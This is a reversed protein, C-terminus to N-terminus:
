LEGRAKLNVIAQERLLKQMEAQIKKEEIQEVTPERLEEEIADREARNKYDSLDKKALYDPKWREIKARVAQEGVTALAHEVWADPDIVVHALVSKDEQTLEM